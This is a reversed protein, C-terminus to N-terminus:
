LLLIYLRLIFDQLQYIISLSVHFILVSRSLISFDILYLMGTCHLFYKKLVFVELLTFCDMTQKQSHYSKLVIFQCVQAQNPFECPNLFHRIVFTMFYPRALVRPYHGQSLIKEYNGLNFQNFKTIIEARYVWTFISFESYAM